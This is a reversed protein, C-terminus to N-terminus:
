IRTNAPTEIALVRTVVKPKAQKQILQSAPTQKTKKPPLPTPQPAALTCSIWVFCAALAALFIQGPFFRM